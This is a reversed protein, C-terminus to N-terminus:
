SGRGLATTLFKSYKKIASKLIHAALALVPLNPKLSKELSFKKRKIVKRIGHLSNDSVQYLSLFVKITWKGAWELVSVCENEEHRNKCIIKRVLYICCMLSWCYFREFTEKSSCGIHAYNQWLLSFTSCLLSFLAGRPQQHSFKM